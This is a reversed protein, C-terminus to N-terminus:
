DLQHLSALLAALQLAISLSSKLTLGEADLCTRLFPSGVDELILATASGYPVLEYASVLGKVSLARTIEYEWALRARATPDTVTERIMKILVPQEDEVRRGRYIVHKASTCLAEDLDYGTIRM